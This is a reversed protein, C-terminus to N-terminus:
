VREVWQITLENPLNSTETHIFIQNSPQVTVYHEALTGNKEILVKYDGLNPLSYYPLLGKKKCYKTQYFNGM